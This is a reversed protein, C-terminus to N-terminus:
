GAAGSELTRGHEIDTASAVDARGLLELVATPKENTDNLHEASQGLGSSGSRASRGMRSAHSPWDQDRGDARTLPCLWAQGSPKKAAPVFWFGRSSLLM